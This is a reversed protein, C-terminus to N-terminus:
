AGARRPARADRWAGALLWAAISLLRPLRLDERGRLRYLGAAARALTPPEYLAAAEATALRRRWEPVDRRGKLFSHRALLASRFQRTPHFDLPRAGLRVLRVGLAAAFLAALALGHLVRGRPMRG